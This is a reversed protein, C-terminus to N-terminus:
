KKTNKIFEQANKKAVQMERTTYKGYEKMQKFVDVPTSRGMSSEYNLARTAPHTVRTTPDYTSYKIKPGSNVVRYTKQAPQSVKTANYISQLGKGVPRFLKAVKGAAFATAIVEAMGIGASLVPNMGGQVRDATQRQISSQEGLLPINKPQMPENGMLVNPADAVTMIASGAIDKATDVAFNGVSVAADRVTSGIRHAVPSRMAQLMMTYM